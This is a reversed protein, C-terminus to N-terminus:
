NAMKLRDVCVLLLYKIIVDTGTKKAGPHPLSAAVGGTPVGTDAVTRCVSQTGILTEYMKEIKRQVWGSSTPRRGSKLM